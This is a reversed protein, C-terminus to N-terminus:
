KTADYLAKIENDSLARNYVRVEDILGNFYNGGETHRGVYTSYDSVRISNFSCNSQGKLTGNIYLKTVAGNFTGVLHIWQNNYTSFLLNDSVRCAVNNHVIFSIYPKYPSGMWWEALLYGMNDSSTIWHRDGIIFKDLGTGDGFRNVWAVLTIVNPKLTANNGNNVYDDV